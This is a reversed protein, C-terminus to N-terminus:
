LGGFNNSLFISSSASPATSSWSLVGAGNTILVGGNAGDATPLTWILSTAINDGAKFGVYNTGNAALELFRIENTQGASTGYPSLSLSGNSNVSLLTTSTSNQIQFLDGTQSTAGQIAIGVGTTTGTLVRLAIANTITLNTSAVPASDIQVTVANTFTSASVASYTPAYIKIARQSGLFGASFQVTRNLNLFVDSYETAATLATHNPANITFSSPQTGTGITPSIALVPSTVTTGNFTFSSSGAAANSGDKYVVQNASGAVPGTVGQNGQSGQNGQNGQNGQSGNTGATGQSGQNGQSGNTGATGQSGQNGQSGNTGATGQSGQNGQSGNTGATGQSGQNGQSGNTGATGQSGQNGQSGNTGATGQSGQNGQSGNSGASGQSGQNGQSGNSGASGQSGQNGQSGNTGASGQSGQNGQSGNTGATGQSGTSGQSGNTGATGQSGQSGNTGASGQSGQNGQSGNTGASGQSGQNGQSGNTGATGQSGQNGQSGNTGATGQNGQSGQNGQYGQGQTGQNGQNGTTGQSGQNGQEGQEGQYGQPGEIGLSGTISWNSNNSEVTISNYQSLTITLQGDITQSSTTNVTITGSGSNKIIYIQGANGVATPLTVTFSNSTCDIFYDNDGITYSSTKATYPFTLGGLSILGDRVVFDNYM